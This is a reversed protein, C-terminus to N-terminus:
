GVNRDERGKEKEEGFISRLASAVTGSIRAATAVHM